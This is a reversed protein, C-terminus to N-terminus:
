SRAADPTAEVAESDIVEEEDDEDIVEVGETAALELDEPTLVNEGEPADAAAFEKRRKRLLYQWADAVSRKNQIADIIVTRAVLVPSEKLEEKEESFEPHEKCYNYLTSEAIGAYICAERDPCGIKFADRLKQLTQMTMVTPRGRVDRKIYDAHGPDKEDYPESLLSLAFKREEGKQKSQEAKKTRAM